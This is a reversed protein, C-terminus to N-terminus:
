VVATRASVADAVAIRRAAVFADFDDALLAKFGEDSILHSALTGRLSTESNGHKALCHEGFFISPLKARKENNCEKRIFARNLVQDVWHTKAFKGKPFIHDNECENLAIPVGTCFDKAGALATLCLVGRYIASQSADVEFEMYLPEGAWAPPEDGECWAFVEKVDTETTSNVASDYRRGFVSHWYWADVRSYAVAPLGRDKLKVLLAALPILMTGYPILRGHVAGYVVQLREWAEVVAECAEHWRSLFLEPGLGDLRLLTAKKLDKGELIAIVRLIGEGGIQNALEPNADKFGEWLKQVTPDKIGQVFMRASFLDFLSLPVGSRNVREFINVINDAGTEQVLSVTPILFGTVKRYLQELDKVQEDRWVDQEQYLWKLFDPGALRSFPLARHATVREEYRRIGSWNRSVGAVADEFEGALVRELDIFFRYPHSAGKIPIPPEYRAYALSTLRQQGDLVLQLTPGTLDTAGGAEKVGELLRCPFLPDHSPTHLMLFTGVFYGQLLSTLLEEISDRPWVFPRQFEPVVVKGAFADEVLGFLREPNAKPAEADNSM